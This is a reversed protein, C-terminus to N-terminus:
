GIVQKHDADPETSGPHLYASLARRKEAIRAAKVRDGRWYADHFTEELEALQEKLQAPSGTFEFEAM